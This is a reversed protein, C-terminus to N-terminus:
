IWAYQVKGKLAPKKAMRYDKESLMKGRKNKCFCVQIAKVDTMEVKFQMSDQISKEKRLEIRANLISLEEEFEGDEADMFIGCSPFCHSDVDAARREYVTTKCPNEYLASVYVIGDKDPFINRITRKNTLLEKVAEPSTKAILYERKEADVHFCTVIYMSKNEDICTFLIPYQYDALVLDMTLDHNSMHLFSKM